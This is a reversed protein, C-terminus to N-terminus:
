ALKFKLGAFYTRGPMPYGLRTEYKEDFVNKVSAFLEFYKLNKTVNFDLTFIEDLSYKGFSDEWTQKGVYNLASSACFYDNEDILLMYTIKNYPAYAEAGFKSKEDEKTRAVLYNYCISHELIGTKLEISTEFGNSEGIKMQKPNNWDLWSIKNNIKQLFYNAHFKLNKTLEFNGGVDFGYGDEFKYNLNNNTYYIESFSLMRFFKSLNLYVSIDDSFNYISSFKPTFNEGFLKNYDYRVGFSNEWNQMKFIKQLYFSHIGRSYDYITTKLSSNKYNSEDYEFEYGFLFGKSNLLKLKAGVTFDQFFDNKNVDPDIDNKEYVKGYFKMEFALNEQESSYTMQMLNGKSNLRNNPTLAKKESKGDYDELKVISMGPLGLKSEDYFYSVQVKKTKDIKNETKLFFNTKKYDSNERFGDSTATDFSSILALNKENSQSELGYSGNLNLHKYENSGVDIKANFDRPKQSGSKTIINVIGGVGGSGFEVSNGGKIIEVKEIVDPSLFNPDAGGLSPSNMPIGDVLILSYNSSLGRFRVSKAVGFDEDTAETIGSEFKLIEGLNKYGSQELKKQKIIKTTTSNLSSFTTLKPLFENKADLSEEVFIDKTFSLIECFLNQTKFVLLILILKIFFTTKLRKLKM